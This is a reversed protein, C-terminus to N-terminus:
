IESLKYRRKRQKEKVFNLM